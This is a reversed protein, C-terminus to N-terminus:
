LCLFIQMEDGYTPSAEGSTADCVDNEDLYM